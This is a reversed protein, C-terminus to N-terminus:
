FIGKKLTQENPARSLYNPNVLFTLELDVPQKNTLWCLTQEYLWMIVWETMEAKDCTLIVNDFSVKQTKFEQRGFTCHNLMRSSLSNFLHKEACVWEWAPAMVNSAQHDRKVNQKSQCHLILSACILWSSCSFRTKLIKSSKFTSSMKLRTKYLTKVQSVYFLKSM